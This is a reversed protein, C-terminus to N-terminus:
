HHILLVRQLRCSQLVSVGFPEYARDPLLTQVPQDQEAFPAEAPRELLEHHVVVPLPVVLAEAVSQDRRLDRLADTGPHPATLPQTSHQPVVV